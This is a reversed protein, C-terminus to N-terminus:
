SPSVLHTCDNEEGLYTFTLYRRADAIALRAGNRRPGERTASGDTPPTYDALVPAPV